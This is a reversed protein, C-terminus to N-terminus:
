RPERGLGRVLRIAYFNGGQNAQLRGIGIKKRRGSVIDGAQDPHM